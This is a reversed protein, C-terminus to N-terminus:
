QKTTSELSLIGLPSNLAGLVPLDRHFGFVVLPLVVGEQSSVWGEARSGQSGPRHTQGCRAREM